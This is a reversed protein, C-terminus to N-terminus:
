VTRALLQFTGAAIQQVSAWFAWLAKTEFILKEGVYVLTGNTSDYYPTHGGPGAFQLYTQEATDKLEIPITAPQGPTERSLNYPVGLAHSKDNALPYLLIADAPHSVSDVNIWDFGWVQINAKTASATSNSFLPLLEIYKHTRGSLIVRGATDDQVAGHIKSGETVTQFSTVGAGAIDAVYPNVFATANDITSSNFVLRWPSVPEIAQVYMAPHMTPCSVDSSSAM